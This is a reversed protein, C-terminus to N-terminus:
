SLISCLYSNRELALADFITDEFQPVITPPQYFTLLPSISLFLSLSPICTLTREVISYCVCLSHSFSWYEHNAWPVHPPKKEVLTTGTPPNIRIRGESKGKNSFRVRSGELKRWESTLAKNCYRFWKLWNMEEEM